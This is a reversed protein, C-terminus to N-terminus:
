QELRETVAKELAGDSDPLQTKLTQQALRVDLIGNKHRPARNPDSPPEVDISANPVGLLKAARRTLTARDISTTSGLNIPGAFRQAMLELVCDSLTLVDLPTRVEDAPAAIRQGRKLKEYLSALYSNGETVPFGLALSIRVIAAGPLETAVAEEGDKKSRGYHNVPELAAGERYPGDHGSYVADSSFYLLHADMGACARAIARAGVANIRTALQPDKEARDIDSVAALDVVCRPRVENLVSAVEEEHTIDVEHWIAGPLATRRHRGAIHVAVGRSLAISCLNGGIFGGGGFVMTTGIM